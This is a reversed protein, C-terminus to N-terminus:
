SNEMVLGVPFHDSGMPDNEILAPKLRSKEVINESVLCRNICDVSDIDSTM